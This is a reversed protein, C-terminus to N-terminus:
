FQGAVHRSDQGAATLADNNEVEVLMEFPAGNAVNGNLTTATGANSNAIQLKVTYRGAALKRTQRTYVPCVLSRTATIITASFNGAVGTDALAAFAPTADDDRQLMFKYDTRGNQTASMAIGQLIFTVLSNDDLVVFKAILGTADSYAAGAARALDAGLAVRTKEFSM